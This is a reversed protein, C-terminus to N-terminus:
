AIALAQKVQHLVAAIRGTSQLAVKTGGAKELKAKHAKICFECNNIISVALVMLEFDVDDVPPKQMGHMRLNVPMQSIEADDAFHVFRYYINTMAMVMAAQQAAERQEETAGESLTTIMTQNQLAYAAAMAVGQIQAETLEPAGETTLVRELNVRADKASEPLQQKLTDINM